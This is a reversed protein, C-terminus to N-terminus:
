MTGLIQKKKSEYDDKDILGEDLLTKINRLREISNQNEMEGKNPSSSEPQTKVLHSFDNEAKGDLRFLGSQQNISADVFAGAYGFLAIAGYSESRPSVEVVYEKNPHATFSVSFTGPSTATDVSVTTTGPRVDYSVVDGRSLAGLEVGNVKVRSSLALYLFDTSREITVRAKGDPPPLKPVTHVPPGSSACGTVISTVLMIVILFKM